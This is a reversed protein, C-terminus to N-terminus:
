EYDVKNLNLKYITRTELHVMGHFTYLQTVTMGTLVCLMEVVGILMYFMEGLLAEEHQKGTVM